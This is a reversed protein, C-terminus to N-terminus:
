LLVSLCNSLCAKDHMFLVLTSILDSIRKMNMVTSLQVNAECVSRGM